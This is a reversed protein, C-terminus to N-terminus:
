WNEVIEMVAQYTCAVTAVITFISIMSAILIRYFPEGKQNYLYFLCPLLFILSPTFLGGVVDFFLIVNDSTAALGASGATLIAAMFIWRGKTPENGWFMDNISTRAAWIVIPVSLIMVFVIGATTITTLINKETYAELASGDGIADFLYLYTFIGFLNYMVFAIIMVFAVLKIGTRYTANKQHELTPYLNM